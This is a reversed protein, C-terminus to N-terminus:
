SAPRDAADVVARTVVREVDPLYLRDLAYVTVRLAPPADGAVLLDVHPERAASAYFCNLAATRVRAAADAPSLAPPVRLTFTHAAAGDAEPMRALPERALRSYPIRVRAGDDTEVDLSRLGVGVVRGSVAGAGIRQGTAFPQEARLVAGSVVDRIAFWAAAAVLAIPVAFRIAPWEGLTRALLWGAAGAVLLVEIAPLSRQLTRRGAAVPLLSATRRLVWILMVVTAVTAAVRLGVPLLDTTM